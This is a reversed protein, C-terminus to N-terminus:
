IIDFAYEHFGPTVIVDVSPKVANRIARLVLAADEDDIDEVFLSGNYWYHAPAVVGAAEFVEAIETNVHSELGM